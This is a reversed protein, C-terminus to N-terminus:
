NHKDLIAYVTPEFGLDINQKRFELKLSPHTLKELYPKVQNAIKNCAKMLEISDYKLISYELRSKNLPEIIEFTDYIEFIPKAFEVDFIFTRITDNIRDIVKYKFAIPNKITGILKCTIIHTALLRFRKDLTSMLPVTLYFNTFKKRSQFLIYSLARNLAESPLRSELWTYAEDIFCEINKPLSLVDIPKLEKYNKHKIEYNAYIDKDVINSAFYTMLLTKGTGLNGIIIYLM